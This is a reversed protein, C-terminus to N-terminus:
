FHGYHDPTPETSDRIFGLNHAWIPLGRPTLEQAHTHIGPADFLVYVVESSGSVSYITGVAHAHLDPFDEDPSLLYVRDGESFGM